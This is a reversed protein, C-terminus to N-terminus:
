DLFSLIEQKIQEHPNEKEETDNSVVPQSTPTGFNFADKLMMLAVVDDMNSTQQPANGGFLLGKRRTGDPRKKRSKYFLYGGGIIMIFIVGAVPNQQYFMIFGIALAAYIYIKM